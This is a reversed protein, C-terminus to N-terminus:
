RRGRKKAAKKVAKKVAQKAKKAAPAKKAAKKAGKKVAAKKPATRPQWVGIVHGDPDSFLTFWGRGPVEQKSKHIQGGAAVIKRETEDLDTVNVYPTIMTPMQPDPADFIGGVGEIITYGPMAEGFRWDFIQGYFAMLRSPNRTTWEIHQIVNKPM